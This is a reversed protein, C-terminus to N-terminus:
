ICSPGYIPIPMDFDQQCLNSFNTERGNRIFSFEGKCPQLRRRCIQLLKRCVQLLKRNIQLIYERSISLFFISFFPVPWIQNMTEKLKTTTTELAENWDIRRFQKGPKDGVRAHPFLVRNKYVRSVDMKGRPCVFGQPVPNDPDGKVSVLTGDDGVQALIFCSDYCDRACM